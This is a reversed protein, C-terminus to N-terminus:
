RPARLPRAPVPVHLVLYALAVLIIAQFAKILIGWVEFPPTRQPAVAVYMVLVVVQLVAGLLWLGRHDSLLLLVAGLIFAAGASLGFAFLDITAAGASPEDVVKLVGVGIGVYLVAAAISAAAAWGRVRRRRADGTASWLPKWSAM